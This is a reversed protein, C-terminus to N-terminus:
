KDFYDELKDVFERTGIFRDKSLRTKIDSDILFNRYHEQREEITAGLTNYLLNETLLPNHQGHAYYNYSSYAYEGPDKVIGARVPNLEIYKGCQLLYRDTDIISHKFRGQWVHGSYDKNKKFYHYYSLNVQQMFRGIDSEMDIFVM